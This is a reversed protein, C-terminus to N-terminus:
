KTTTLTDVFGALLDGVADAGQAMLQVDPHTYRMTTAIDAHGLYLQVTRPAVGARLATTAYLHRMSHPVIGALREDEGRVAAAARDVEYGRVPRPEPVGPTAVRWFVWPPAPQERKIFDTLLKEAAAGLPVTRLKNGKGLVRLLMRGDLTLVDDLKLGCAESVRLGTFPLLQLLTREPDDIRNLRERWLAYQAPTPAGREEGQRGKRAPVLSRKLQLEFADDAEEGTAEQAWRAHASVAARYVTISSRPTDATVKQALWAVPDLGLAEAMGIVQVYAGVTRASLGRAELHVRFTSPTSM